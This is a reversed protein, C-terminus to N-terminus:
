SGEYTRAVYDEVNGITRERLDPDRKILKGVKSWAIMRPAITTDYSEYLYRLGRGLSGEVSRISVLSDYLQLQGLIKRMIGERGRDDVIVFHYRVNNENDPSREWNWRVHRSHKMIKMM